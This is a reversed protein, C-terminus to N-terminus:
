KMTGEYEIFRMRQEKVTKNMLAYYRAVTKGTIGGIKADPMVQLLGEMCFRRTLLSPHPVTLLPTAIVETGFLLIDIDATRAKRLGKDQRGLIQEIKQCESLLAKASRDYRGGIIRNFYWAQIETVEVPETEMVDSTIVPPLLVKRLMTEM